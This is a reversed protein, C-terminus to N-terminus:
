CTATRAAAPRQTCDKDFLVLYFNVSDATPDHSAVEVFTEGPDFALFVFGSRSRAM